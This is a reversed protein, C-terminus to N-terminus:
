RNIYMDVYEKKFFGGCIADPYGYLYERLPEIDDVLEM